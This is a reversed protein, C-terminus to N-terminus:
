MYYVKICLKHLFRGTKYMEHLICWVCMRYLKCGLSKYMTIEKHRISSPHNEDFSGAVMM